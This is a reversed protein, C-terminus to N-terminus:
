ADNELQMIEKKIMSGVRHRALYVQGRNVNLVRCIEAIPREKVAVLDFIQYQKPSLKNKVRQMAHDILNKRWEKDWVEETLDQALAGDEIAADMSIWHRRKRFQDTIRWKTAQYLYTKFSGKEPDYRFDPMHKSVSIVTEQVVDQSETESLGAKIAIAFILKWYTNFFDQWSSHDDLDRLRELLTDRTPILEEKINVPPM